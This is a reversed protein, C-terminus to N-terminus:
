TGLTVCRIAKGLSRGDAMQGPNVAYQEVYMGFAMGTAGYDSYVTSAWYDGRSGRRNISDSSIYGSTVFNYPYQRWELSSVSSPVGGSGGMKRDLYSFSPVRNNLDSAGQSINGTSKKGLPIQWGSPCISTTNHDGSSYATTDAIAAPWTYYNGYSYINQSNTTDSARSSTNQNNYRPFRTEPIDETGINITNNSGDTSYLSNATTIDYTWPEEPAALGSFNGYTSSTGYGQALLGDSNHEATNDLRLNEIMWCNDDALKAVAYTDGDRQDTLATVSGQALSSCGSWNQLSGASEVWIAYLSLGNTSTDAPTTITEMPGYNTGTYDYSTNWGAFGYGQRSFNSPYLMVSANDGASQKAMTGETPSLSNVNYCIKGAECAVPELQPEPNAVAIFNIVNKYEGSAMANSAKAAIKFQVSNNSVIDDTSILTAVNTTDSYLPLGSYTTWSAGSTSPLYAYGWTNDTTLSALSAGYNISTFNNSNNGDMILNRTEYNTAQGVTANLTYGYASNTIVSVTIINSDSTGGPALDDIHLDSSLSVGITPNFTFEVNTSSSYTLAMVANCCLVGGLLLSMLVFAILKFRKDLLNWIMGCNYMLM